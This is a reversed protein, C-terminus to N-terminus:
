KWFKLKESWSAPHAIRATWGGGPAMVAKLKEGRAVARVAHRYDSPANGANPGDSFIEAEWEGAGLFSTDIEIEAGDWSAIASVYWVDGKRRAVAACRDVDGILGRTEDWTTPVAAMFSFCEMNALYQSPSDCLMQLPAEYLSMLAMQHVRTGQVDPQNWNPQFKATEPNFEKKWGDDGLPRARYRMAGPTYDMPGAVMRTFTVRLDNAPMNFYDHFKATELGHVGEYNIINPYTRSFGTPKYMGHYDVMLRYEAAIRATQELFSVVFQDDRDMFDIKFGKVGLAAYKQFVEHQRGVLQPWSCWLIIGVGKRAGYNVLEAVDIEPNIEMIRLKVSWGEDMIVYEVGTKAAFDIYYKYTATNCGAKFDVDTGFVNWCNWWEWAVKGPKIWSLDGELRNPTALAYVADSEILKAPSDALLFVRWPYTRTGKTAALYDFRGGVRRQRQNNTIKAPDPLKALNADLRPSGDAAPSLNWGPYDLLDSETVCLSPGKPYQVLLPLYVLKRKKDKLEGVTTKEYVSEWSCEHGGALGAYAVLDKSPFVLPAQEDKVKVQPDKWATAFRYAVGDNRAHLRIQWDGAFSVVTEAGDDKVAAKKYIPTPITARHPVSKTGVVKAGAGGINGKGDFTMSIPAPGLVPKGDRAVSIALAPETALTIENRGDPSKLSITEASASVCAALAALVILINKM